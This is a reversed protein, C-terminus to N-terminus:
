LITCATTGTTDDIGSIGDGEVAYIYQNAAINSYTEVIGSPWNITFTQVGACSGSSLAMTTILIMAPKGFRM